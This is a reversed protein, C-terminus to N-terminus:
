GDVGARVGDFPAVLQRLLDGLLRQEAPSLGRLL